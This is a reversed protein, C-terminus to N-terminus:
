TASASFFMGVHQLRRGPIAVADTSQFLVARYVSTRIRSFAVSITSVSIITVTSILSICVGTVLIIKSIARVDPIHLTRTTICAATCFM